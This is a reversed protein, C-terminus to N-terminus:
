SPLPRTPLRYRLRSLATTHPHRAGQEMAATRAPRGAGSGGHEEPIVLGLLATERFLDFLDQPYAATTDIERARPAVKDQAIRRVTAQLELHEPPLDFPM